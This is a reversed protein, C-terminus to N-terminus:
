KPLAEVAKAIDRLQGVTLKPSINTSDPFDRLVGLSDILVSLASRLEAVHNTNVAVMDFCQSHDPIRRSDHLVDNMEITRRAASSLCAM